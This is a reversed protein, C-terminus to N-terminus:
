GIEYALKEKFIGNEFEVRYKGYIRAIHRSTVSEKSAQKLLMPERLDKYFIVEGSLDRISTGIYYIAFLNNKRESQLLGDAEGEKGLEEDLKKEWDYKKKALEHAEAASLAYLKELESELKM